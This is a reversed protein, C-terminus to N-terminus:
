PLPVASCRDDKPLHRVYGTFASEPNVRIGALPAIGSEHM